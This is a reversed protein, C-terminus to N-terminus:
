RKLDSLMGLLKPLYICEKPWYGNIERMQIYIPNSRLKIVKSREKYIKKWKKQIIRLWFTKLIAIAEQTPLIIYLGIEPKIYNSQSIINQYNRITPHEFVTGYTIELEYAEKLYSIMDSIKLIRNSEAEMSNDSDYEDDTNYDMYNDLDSLAIGTKGDFREYVLYHTEINPDSNATKGHKFPCHIECLMLEYKKQTNIDNM